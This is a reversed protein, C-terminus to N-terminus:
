FHSLFSPSSFSFLDSFLYIVQGLFLAMNSSAESSLKRVLSAARLLFGRVSVAMLVGVFVFSITQSWMEVDIGGSDGSFAPSFFTLLVGIVRTVPDITKKRHLIVNLTATIIKYACFYLSFMDLRPSFHGKGRNQTMKAIWSKMEKLLKKKWKLFSARSLLHPFPFSFLLFLLFFIFISFYFFRFFPPPVSFYSFVQLDAIQIELVEARQSASASGFGFYSSIGGSEKESLSSHLASRLMERRKEITTLLHEIQERLETISKPTIRSFYSPSSSLLFLFLAFLFLLILMCYSYYCLFLLLFFFFCSLFSSFVLMSLYKYPTSVAGYGSLMAMLPVGLGGIRSVCLEFFTGERFSHREPLLSSSFLFSSFLPSFLFLSSFLFWEPDPFSFM